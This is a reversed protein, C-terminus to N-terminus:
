SKALSSEPSGQLESLLSTDTAPKIGLIVPFLGEIHINELDQQSIPLPVGHGDRKIQLNLNISNLDIGGLDEARNGDLKQQDVGFRNGEISVQSVKMAKDKGKAIYDLLTKSDETSLVGEMTGALTDGDMQYPGSFSVFGDIFVQEGREKGWIAKAMDSYTFGPNVTLTVNVAGFVLEPTGRPIITDPKVGDIEASKAIITTNTFGHRALMESFPEDRYDVIGAASERPFPALNTEGKARADKRM